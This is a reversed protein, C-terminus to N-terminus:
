SSVIAKAGAYHFARRLGIIKDASSIDGLGSECASLTVLKSELQAGYLDRVSLNGNFGASAALKLHSEAPTAAFFEGHSAVHLVDFTAENEMLTEEKAEDQSLVVSNRFFRTIAQVENVAFPLFGSDTRKPNSFILVCASDNLRAA